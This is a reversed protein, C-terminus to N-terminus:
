RADHTGGAWHRDLRSQLFAFAEIEAPGGTKDVIVRLKQYEAVVEAIPLIHLRTALIAAELVAHKGRNFGWFERQAGFHVVEAEIQVREGTEDIRLVKFEYFRCADELVFGNIRHAPRRRPALAEGLAARALLWVDDTVHLVGEGRAKLNCYTTSTPFPRLLLRKWDPTVRPGMPALHMGGDADTTTVLGELIPDM